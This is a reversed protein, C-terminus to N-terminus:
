RSQTEGPHVRASLFVVKKGEFKFPRTSTAGEGGQSVPFLGGLSEEREPLVGSVSTVTLLDVRRGQCSRCALERHFYISLLPSPCCCYRSISPNTMRLRTM